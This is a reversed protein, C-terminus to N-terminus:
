DGQVALRRLQRGGNAISQREAEIRGRILAVDELSRAKRLRKADAELERSSRVMSKIIENMELTVHERAM